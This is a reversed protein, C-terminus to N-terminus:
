MMRMPEFIKDILPFSDYWVQNDFAAHPAYRFFGYAKIMEMTRTDTLIATSYDADPEPEILHLFLVEDLCKAFDKDKYKKKLESAEDFILEILEDQNNVTIEANGRGNFM